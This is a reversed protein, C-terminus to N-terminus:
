PLGRRMEVRQDGLNTCLVLFFVLTCLMVTVHFFFLQFYTRHLLLRLQNALFPAGGRSTCYITLQPFAHCPIVQLTRKSPGGLPPPTKGAKSRLDHNFKPAKDLPAGPNSLTNPLPPFLIRFVVFFTVLLHNSRAPAKMLSFFFFLMTFIRLGFMERSVSLFLSRLYFQHIFRIIRGTDYTGRLVAELRDCLLECTSASLGQDLVIFGNERFATELSPENTRLISFPDDKGIQIPQALAAM